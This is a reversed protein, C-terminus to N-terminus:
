YGGILDNKGCVKVPLHKVNYVNRKEDKNLRIVVEKIGANVIMRKCLSCPEANDVYTKVTEFTCPTVVSSEVAVTPPLQILRNELSYGVLYLTSDLMESRCASIIANQEAHVALCNSYDMGREANQRNCEGSELCDKVGRPAGNFGSSIIEDNKVIIAGYKRKSCTSREAVTEAIDLYYNTKDIRKQM